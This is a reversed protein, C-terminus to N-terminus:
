FEDIERFRGGTMNAMQRLWRTNERYQELRVGSDPMEEPKFLLTNVTLREPSTQQYERVLAYFERAHDARAKVAEPKGSYNYRGLYPPQDDRTIVITDPRMALATKFATLPTTGYGPQQGSNANVDNVFWDNLAQKAELSAYELQPRFAEAGDRYFIVNFQTDPHLQNVMNTMERHVADVVGRTRVSPSNDVLVIISRTKMKHGFFEAESFGELAGEGGKGVGSGGIGLQGIHAGAPTIMSALARADTPEMQMPPLPPLSIRGKATSVLKKMLKPRKTQQEFQKVRIKHELTRAPLKPMERAPKFMMEPPKIYEYVVWAGAALFVAAHILLSIGFSQFTRGFITRKKPPAGPYTGPQGYPQPPLGPYPQTSQPPGGASGPPPPPPQPPQPPQPTSM